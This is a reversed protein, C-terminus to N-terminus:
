IRRSWGPAATMPEDEGILWDARVTLVEIDDICLRADEVGIADIYAIESQM